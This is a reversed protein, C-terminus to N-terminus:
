ISGKRCFTILSTCGGRPTAGLAEPLLLTMIHHNNHTITGNKFGESLTCPDTLKNGQGDLISTSRGGLMFRVHNSPTFENMRRALM